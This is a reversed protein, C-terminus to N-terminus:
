ENNIPGLSNSVVAGTKKHTFYYKRDLKLEHLFEPGDNILDWPDFMNDFIATLKGNIYVNAACLRNNKAVEVLKIQKRWATDSPEIYTQKISVTM